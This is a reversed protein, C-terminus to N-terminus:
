KKGDRDKKNNLNNKLSGVQKITQDTMSICVVTESLVIAQIM